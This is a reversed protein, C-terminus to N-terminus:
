RPPKPAPYNCRGEMRNEFEAEEKGVARFWAWSKKLGQAALYGAGIVMGLPLVIPWLTVVFALFLLEGPDDPGYLLVYLMVLVFMGIFYIAFGM